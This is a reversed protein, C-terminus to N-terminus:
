LIYYLRKYDIIKFKTASLFIMVIEQRNIKKLFNLMLVMFKSIKIQKLITLMARLTKIKFWWNSLAISKTQTRMSREKWFTKMKYRISTM